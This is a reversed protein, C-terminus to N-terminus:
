PPYGTCHTYKIIRLHTCSRTGTSSWGLVSKKKRSRATMGTMGGGMAPLRHPSSRLVSLKGPDPWCEEERSIGGSSSLCRIRVEFISFAGMGCDLVTM